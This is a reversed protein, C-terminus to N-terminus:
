RTPAPSPWSIPRAVAIVEFGREGVRGVCGCVSGRPLPLGFRAQGFPERCRQSSVWIALAIGAPAFAMVVVHHEPESPVASWRAHLRGESEGLVLAAESRTALRGRLTLAAGDFPDRRLCEDLVDKAKAFHGQGLYLRALTLSALPDSANPAIM